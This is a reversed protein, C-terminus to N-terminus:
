FYHNRYRLKVQLRKSLATDLVDELQLFQSVLELVGDSELLLYLFHLSLLLLLVISEPQGMNPQLLLLM